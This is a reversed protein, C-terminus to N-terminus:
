GGTCRLAWIRSIGFVLFFFRMLKSLFHKGRKPMHYISHYTTVALVPEQENSAELIDLLLFFNRSQTLSVHQALILFQLGCHSSLKALINSCPLIPEYAILDCVEQTLVLESNLLGHSFPSLYLGPSM